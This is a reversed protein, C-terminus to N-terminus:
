NTPKKSTKDTASPPKINQLKSLGGKSLGEYKKSSKPKKDYKKWKYQKDRWYNSNVKAKAKKKPKAAGGSKYKGSKYERLIRARTEPDLGYSDYARRADAEPIGVTLFSILILTTFVPRNM